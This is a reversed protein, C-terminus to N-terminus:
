ILALLRNVFADPHLIGSTQQLPTFKRQAQIHRCGSADRLGALVITDGL